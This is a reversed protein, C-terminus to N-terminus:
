GGDIRWSGSALGGQICRRRKYRAPLDDFFSVLDHHAIFGTWAKTCVKPETLTSASNTCQLM